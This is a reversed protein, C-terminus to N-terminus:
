KTFLAKVKPRTLYVAAFVNALIFILHILVPLLADDLGFTKIVYDLIIPSTQFFLRVLEIVGLIATAMTLTIAGIRATNYSYSVGIGLIIYLALRIWGTRWTGGFVTYNYLFRFPHIPLHVRHFNPLLFVAKILLLTIIPIFIIYLSIGVLKKEKM